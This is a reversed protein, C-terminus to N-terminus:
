YSTLFNILWWISANVMIFAWSTYKMLFVSQNWKRKTELDKFGCRVKPCVPCVETQSLWRLNWSMEILCSIKARFPISIQNHHHGWTSMLFSKFDVIFLANTTFEAFCTMRLIRLQPLCIHLLCVLNNQGHLVRCAPRM